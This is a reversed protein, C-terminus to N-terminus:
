IDHKGSIWTGRGASGVIVPEVMPAVVKSVRLLENIFKHMEEVEEKKPKIKKLVCNEIKKINEYLSKEDIENEAEIM